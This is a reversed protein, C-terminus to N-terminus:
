DDLLGRRRLFRRLGDRARQELTRVRRRTCELADATEHQTREDAFRLRVVGALEDDLSDIYERTAARLANWHLADAPNQPPETLPEDTALVDDIDIPARGAPTSPERAAGRLRDIMLNKAIRLVYPRYPRLGDYAARANAAFARAFVEQVLEQQTTPDAIGLVTAGNGRDLVFGRRVVMEVDDVYHYYVQELADRDGRRFSDLLERNESLM